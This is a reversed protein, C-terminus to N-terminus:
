FFLFFFITLSVFGCLTQVPLLGRLEPFCAGPVPNLCSSVLARETLVSPAQAPTAMSTSPLLVQSFASPPSEAPSAELMVTPFPEIFMRARQGSLGEAFSATQPLASFAPVFTVTVGHSM